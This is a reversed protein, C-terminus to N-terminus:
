FCQLGDLFVSTDSIITPLFSLEDSLIQNSFIKALKPFNLVQEIQNLKFRALETSILSVQAQKKWRFILWAYLMQTAECIKTPEWIM